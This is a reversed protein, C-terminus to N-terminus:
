DDGSAAVRIVKQNKHDWPRMWDQHKTDLGKSKLYSRWMTYTYCLSRISNGLTTRTAHGSFTKGDIPFYLYENWPEESKCQPNCKKFLKLTIADWKQRKVGEPANLMLFARNLQNTTLNRIIKAMDERSRKTTGPLNSMLADIIERNIHRTVGNVTIGDAFLEFL